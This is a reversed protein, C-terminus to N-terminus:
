NEEAAVDRKKRKMESPILTRLEEIIEKLRKETEDIPKPPPPPPKPPPPYTRGTKRYYRELNRKKISEKNREYTQKWPKTQTEM